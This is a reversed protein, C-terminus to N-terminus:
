HPNLVCIAPTLESDYHAEKEPLHGGPQPNLVCLAPTLESDHHAETEPLQGGTPTWFM